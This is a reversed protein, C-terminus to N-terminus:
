VKGSSSRAAQPRLLALGVYAKARPAGAGFSVKVHNIGQYAIRAGSATFVRQRGPWALLGAARSAAILGRARLREVLPEWDRRTTTTWDDGAARARLEVGARPGLGAATVDVSLGYRTRAGGADALLAAVEDAPGPWSQSELLAVVGAADLGAAVLRLGRPHRAPFVGANLVGAGPPLAALVTEVM